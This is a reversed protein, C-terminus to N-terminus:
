QNLASSEAPLKNSGRNIALIALMIMAAIEVVIFIQLNTWTGEDFGYTHMGVQLLNVGFWALAVVINLAILGAAYGVDRMMGAIRGHTLFLLWLVIMMAGNEKPDWGWFRGWSQDAWIGGLITGFTSFLLAMLSLWVMTKYLSKLDFDKKPWIKLCLYVHAMVGVVFCMSYGITIIVVHTALWFNTNLVAEVQVLTEGETSYKHAIFLLLPGAISACFIWVNTKQIWEFIFCVLVLVFCVFIISEYLTTVPPRSMLFCRIVLGTGHLCLAVAVFLMSLMRMNKSWALFSTFSFLFTFIYLALSNYFYDASNYSVELDIKERHGVSEKFKKVTASFAESNEALYNANMEEFYQQLEAGNKYSLLVQVPSKWAGDEKEPNESPVTPFFMPIRGVDESRIKVVFLEQEWPDLELIAQLSAEKKTLNESDKARLIDSYKKIMVEYLSAIEAQKGYIDYFSYDGGEGLSLKEAINPGVEINKMYIYALSGMHKEFYNIKNRLILLQKDRISMQEKTIKSDQLKKIETNINEFEAILENYSYLFDPDPEVGVSGIVENNQIKFIKRQRAKEPMFILEAFWEAASMKTTKETMRDTHKFKSQHYIGLLLHRAYSDLPKLRDGGQVVISKFEKMDISSVATDDPATEEAVLSTWVCCLFLLVYLSREFM